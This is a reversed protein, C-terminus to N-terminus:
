DLLEVTQDPGDLLLRLKNSLNRGILIESETDNGIVEIRTFLSGSIEFNVYYLDIMAEGGWLGLVRQQRFSKVELFYLLNIPIVTTDSGTDLIAHQYSTRQGSVPNLLRVELAPAPPYLVHSFPVRM